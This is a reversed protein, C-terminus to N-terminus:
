SVIGEWKPNTQCVRDVVPCSLTQINIDELVAENKVAFTKCRMQPVIM